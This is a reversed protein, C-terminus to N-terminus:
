QSPRLNLFGVPGCTCGNVATGRISSSLFVGHGACMSAGGWTGGDSSPASATTVKM